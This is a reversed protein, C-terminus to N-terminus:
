KRPIALSLAAGLSPYKERIIVDVIWWRTGKIVTGNRFTGTQVAVIMADDLTWDRGSSGERYAQWVSSGSIGNLSHPLEQEADQPDTSRDKPVEVLVHKNADYGSFMSTDGEYLVTGYTFNKM